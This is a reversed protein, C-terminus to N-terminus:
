LFRLKRLQQFSNKLIEKNPFRIKRNQNVVSFNVFNRPFYKKCTNPDLILPTYISGGVRAYVDQFQRTQPLENTSTPLKM